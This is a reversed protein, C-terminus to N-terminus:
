SGESRAARQRDDCRTVFDHVVDAFKKPEELYLWHGCNEFIYLDADPMLEAVAKVGAIPFIKTERGAMVLAPITM